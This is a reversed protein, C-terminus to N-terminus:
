FEQQLIGKAILKNTSEIEYRISSELFIILLDNLFKLPIKAYFISKVINGNNLAKSM